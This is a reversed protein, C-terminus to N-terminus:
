SLLFSRNGGLGKELASHVLLWWASWSLLIGNEQEEDARPANQQKQLNPATRAQLLTMSPDRSQGRHAQHEESSSSFTEEEKGLWPAQSCRIGAETCVPPAPIAVAVPHALLLCFSLFCFLSSLEALPHNAHKSLDCLFVPSALTSWTADPAESHAACIWIPAVQRQSRSLWGQDGLGTGVLGTRGCGTM